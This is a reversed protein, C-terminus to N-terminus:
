VAEAQQWMAEFEDQSITETHSLDLEDFYGFYHLEGWIAHEPSQRTTKYSKGQIVTVRRTLLNDIVEDYVSSFEDLPYIEMEHFAFYNSKNSM